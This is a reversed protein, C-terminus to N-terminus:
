KHFPRCPSRGPSALSSQEQYVRNGAGKSEICPSCEVGHYSTICLTGRELTHGKRIYLALVGSDTTALHHSSSIIITSSTRPLSSFAQRGTNGQSQRQTYIYVIILTIDTHKQTTHREKTISDKPSREHHPLSPFSTTTVSYHSFSLGGARRGM